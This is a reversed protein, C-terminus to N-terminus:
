LPVIRTRQSRSPACHHGIPDQDPARRGFELAFQAAAADDVGAQEVVAAEADAEAAAFLPSRVSAISM